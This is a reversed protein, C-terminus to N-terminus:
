GEMSDQKMGEISTEYATLRKDILAVFVPVPCAFIIKRCPLWSSQVAVIWYRDNAFGFIPGGSMGIIDDLSCKDDIKGVFQPYTTKPLDNPPDDLRTIRIMTPFVSGVLQVGMEDTSVESTIFRRPLGLMFYQDFKITSPHIWNKKSVPVIGNAELLRQYYPRLAVLGFDLGDTEDYIYFRSSGEYDFPIPHCSVVDPGFYDVLVCETLKVTKNLIEDLEKLIHGATVWIWAGRISLVFGSCSFFKDQDMLEGKSDVLQYSGSLSVLHRCFFTLMGELASNGIEPMPGICDNNTM